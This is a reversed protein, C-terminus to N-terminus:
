ATSPMAPDRLLAAAAFIDGFPALCPRLDTSEYTAAMAAARRVDGYTLHVNPLDGLASRLGEVDTGAPWRGTAAAFSAKWAELVRTHGRSIGTAELEDDGLSFHLNTSQHAGAYIAAFEVRSLSYRSTRLLQDIQKAVRDQDDETPFKASTNYWCSRWSSLIHDRDMEELGTVVDTGAYWGIYQAAEAWRHFDEQESELARIASTEFARGQENKIDEATNNVWIDILADLFPSREEDESSATPDIGVQKAAQEQIKKVRNRAVGCCYRFPDEIGPKALAIGVIEAWMDSTLGSQRYTDVTRKWGPPLEGGEGANWADLFAEAFWRQQRDQDVAGTIAAQFDQQREQVGAVLAADAPTASKGGNCPECATVLNDPTDTGGLAVATVHDVTLKAQAATAGCYHCRHGDRRLVQFRLARSIAM